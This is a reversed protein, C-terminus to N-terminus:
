LILDSQVNAILKHLYYKIAAVHSAQAEPLLDLKQFQLGPELLLVPNQEEPRIGLLLLEEVAPALERFSQQAGTVLDALGLRARLPNALPDRCSRAAYRQDRLRLFVKFLDHAKALAPNSRYERRVLLGLDGLFRNTNLKM